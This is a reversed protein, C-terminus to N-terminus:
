SSSSSKPKSKLGFHQIRYRIQDRNMGLLKAARTRNGRARELAQEVFSREVDRIDIGSAPLRFRTDTEAASALLEFDTLTLRPGEALLVAREISNKLERVNGPWPYRRILDMATPDIGEIEKGFEQNFRDVFYTALMEADGERDRLAPIRITLVALRYYLDERFSGKKVADRLDVNTAAVIRIDAHLDGAGGVRRFSKDELFRLLKAQPGPEMEGIEDLFVTGGDAQEFLGLKKQKADTFAGREHGFLESELLAAPLASCTINLFPGPARSSRAHISRAVLDKGTGSEGTVLVTSAPSQAVQEILTRVKKMEQSRGILLGEGEPAESNMERVERKIQTAALAQDVLKLLEEFDIPKSVYHFAGAKMAKVANPVSSHGTMLIAPVDIPSQRLRELLEFASGDPLRYDLLAVDVSEELRKKAAQLSDAEMVRYGAQRLKGALSLRIAHEDDVVLVTTTSGM